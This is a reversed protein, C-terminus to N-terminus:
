FLDNEKEGKPLNYKLANALIFYEKLFLKDGMYINIRKFNSFQSAHCLCAEKKIHAFEKIDIETTIARDPTGKYKRRMRFNLIWPLTNLWKKPITLYYLKHLCDNLGSNKDKNYLEFSAETTVKSIIKHDRHGSIGHSDFTIVIQPKVDTLIGKIKTKLEHFSITNLLGDPYNLYYIKKIGLIKSAKALEQKRIQGIDHAPEQTSRFRSAEGNTATVLHIDVGQSAYKAITGGVGISEDDPHAFVILIKRNM